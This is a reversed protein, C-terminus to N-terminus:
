MHIRARHQLLGTVTHSAAELRRRAQFRTDPPSAKGLRVQVRRSVFVLPSLATVHLLSWSAPPLPLCRWRTRRRSSEGGGVEEEVVAVVVM